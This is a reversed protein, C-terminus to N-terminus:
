QITTYRIASYYTTSYNGGRASANQIDGTGTRTIQLSVKEDKRFNKLKEPAVDIFGGKFAIEVSISDGRIELKAEEGSKLDPQKVSITNANGKRLQIANDQVDMFDAAKLHISNKYSKKELDIFEMDILADSGMDEKKSYVYHAGGLLYTELKMENGNCIADSPESLVITTGNPGAARYEANVTLLQEEKDYTVFYGQYIESQSIHKSEMVENSPCATLLLTIASLSVLVFLKNKMILSTHSIYAYFFRGFIAFIIPLDM